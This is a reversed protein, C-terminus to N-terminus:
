LRRIAEMTLEKVMERRYNASGRVDSIPTVEEAATEGVSELSFEEIKKGVLKGETKKARVPTPAVAGFAVRAKSCVKTRNDFSLAVAVGVLAIDMARRISHKLYIQRTHASPFPIRVETLIEGKSLNMKGPGAFLEELPIERNGSPGVVKVRADLVLLGPVMDASPSANCLNGGLTALNRVQTSGISRAAVCLVPFRKQLLPHVAIDAIHTLTGLSLGSKGYTKVFDLGKIKKLNIVAKPKILKQKLRPILDTGGALLSAKNGLNFCLKCAEKITKPEYYDFRNM